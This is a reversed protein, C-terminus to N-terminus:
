KVWLSYDTTQQNGALDTATAQITYLRGDSDNRKKYTDLSVTSGFSPVTMSYIGYEDTITIVVSALGSLSDAASGNITVPVPKSKNTAALTAPSTSVTVTPLTKDVSFTASKQGEVIGARDTALYTFTSTGEGAVSSATSGAYNASNITLFDVGSLNDSASFNVTVDANYWGNDNAPASTTYASSPPTQDVSVTAIKQGEAIGAKDTALYTLTSVGEGAVLSATSGAYSTGNITLFDVGSLNDTASFTATVDANYWGNANAPASTTYASSPPTKDVSFTATKQGEAIGAKDTASYTFTSTGEGAVSSATSGAYNAGNITLFDIGSLNDAASFNVTLDANYWGNANSPASATYATNPATKDIGVTVNRSIEDVGAVDTAHYNLINVGEATVLSSATSGAVVDGNVSISAVGSLNDAATFNAIVDGTYWGNANPPYSLAYTTIPPISDINVDAFQEAEANCALDVAYYGASFHGNSGGSSYSGFSVYAPNGATVTSGWNGGINKRYKISGVGSTADTGNIQVTVPSKYWGNTGAIGSVSAASSPVTGDIKVTMINPTEVNGAYDVAFYSLVHSGDVSIAVPVTLAGIVVEPAGDLSYHIEKISTGSHDTATLTVTVPSTYWGSCGATGSIAPITVPSLSPTLLFAQTKGNYTGEGVIQGTANVGWAKTLVWGSGAPILTNLDYPVDYEWLLARYLPAQSFTGYGVIQQLQPGSISYAYTATAGAPTALAQFDGNSRWLFAKYGSNYYSGVVQWYNDIGYATGSATTLYTMNGSSDWIVPAGASGVAYGSSNIGYAAGTNTGLRTMVGDQWIFPYNGSSGVVTGLDNIGYAYSYTTGSLVGLDLPFGDNWLLAHQSGGVLGYGAVQGSGNIAMGFSTGAPGPLLTTSSYNSYVFARTSNASYSGYTAIGTVNGSSNIGKATSTQPSPTLLQTVVYRAAYTTTAAALLVTAVTLFLTRMGFKKLRSMSM